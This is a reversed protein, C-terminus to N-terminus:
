DGSILRQYTQAAEIPDTSLILVATNQATPDDIVGKHRWQPGGFCALWYRQAGINGGLASKVVAAGVMAKVQAFGNDLEDRYHKMLTNVDIGIVLAIVRHTNGNAKLVQVTQRTKDTPAHPPQGRGRGRKEEKAM